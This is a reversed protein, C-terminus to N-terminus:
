EAMAPTPRGNSVLWQIQQSGDDATRALLLYKGDSVGEDSAIAYWGGNVMYGDGLDMSGKAHIDVTGGIREALRAEVAARGEVVSQNAFAVHADETYLMAVASADGAAWATEYATMLGDMATDEVDDLNPSMTGMLMEPAPESDYTSAVVQIKWEGDKRGFWTMYHGTVVVPDAGEVPTSVSFHGRVVAVDGALHLAERDITLTPSGALTATLGAEIEARGLQVGGDAFVTVADDAYNAAVMDAHGLNYHTAYSESLAALAAEDASTDYSAEATESDAEDQAACATAFTVSLFLVLLNRVKM